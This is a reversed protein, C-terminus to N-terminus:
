PNQDSNTFVEGRSLKGLQLGYLQNFLRRIEESVRGALDEALKNNTLEWGDDDAISKGQRRLNKAKTEWEKTETNRREFSEKNECMFHEASEVVKAWFERRRESGPAFM